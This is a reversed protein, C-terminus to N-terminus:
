QNRKARDNANPQLCLRFKTATWVPPAGPKLPRDPDQILLLHPHQHLAADVSSWFYSWIVLMNRCSCANQHIAFQM